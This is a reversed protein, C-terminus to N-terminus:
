NSAKHRYVFTGTQTKAVSFVAKTSEPFAIRKVPVTYLFRLFPSPNLNM